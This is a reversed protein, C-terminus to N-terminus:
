MSKQRCTEVDLAMMLGINAHHHCKIDFCTVLFRHLLILFIFLDLSLCSHTVSLKIENLSLDLLMKFLYFLPTTSIAQLINYITYGLCLTTSKFICKILIVMTCCYPIWYRALMEDIIVTRDFCYTLIDQLQSVALRFM